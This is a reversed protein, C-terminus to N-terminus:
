GGGGQLPPPDAQAELYAEVYRVPDRALAAYLQAHPTDEYPSRHIGRHNLLFLARFPYALLIPSHTAIIWQSKATRRRRDLLALFELQREPSLAAEPEDLIFVSPTEAGFRQEFFSLFAEGHSMRHLKRVGYPTAEPDPVLDDEEYSRHVQTVFNFFSEARFFFGRGVRPLWGVRLAPALGDPATQKAYNVHDRSGGELNFGCLQALAELLTSKGTGNDGVLVTVPEDFELRFDGNLFPLTFPFEGAKRREPVLEVSRLYPATLTTRPSRRSM